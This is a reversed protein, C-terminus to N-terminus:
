HEEDFTEAVLEHGRPGALERMRERARSLASKVTGVSLELAAAAEGYSLGSWGCLALVDQQRRPLTRVHALLESMRAQDDLREHVESSFDPTPEPLALRALAAAYRRASRRRNRVLNTAIGYFWPLVKDPELEHARRRWAELFVMSALDEAASWDATRRFCYNYITRGYRDFLEAFADVDGVRVRRWLADDTSTTASL